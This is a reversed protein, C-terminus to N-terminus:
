TSKKNDINYFYFQRFVLLLDRDTPALFLFYKFMCYVDDIKNDHNIGLAPKCFRSVENLSEALHVSRRLGHSSLLASSELVIDRFKRLGDGVGMRMAPGIGVGPRKRPQHEPSGKGVALQWRPDFSSVWGGIGM